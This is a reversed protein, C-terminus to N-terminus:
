ACAAPKSISFLKKTLQLQWLTTQHNNLVQKDYQMAGKIFLGKM